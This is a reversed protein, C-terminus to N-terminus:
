EKIKLSKLKLMQYFITSLGITRIIQGIMKLEAVTGQFFGIKDSKRTHSVKNWRVVAIKLSKKIIISNMYSELGFGALKSLASFDSLLSKKFVREGSISDLGFMKYALLSNQKLSISVDAKREIVPTILRTIEIQNLGVLDSDLLMVHEYRAKKLGALVAATKGGNVKLDILDVQKFKSAVLATKDKSGDNVVIIQGVMPHNKVVSIVDSIRKEENYAPIICTIKNKDDNKNHNNKKKSNKNGENSNMSEDGRM